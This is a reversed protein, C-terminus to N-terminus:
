EALAQLNARVGEVVSVPLAYGAHRMDSLSQEFAQAPTRPPKVARCAQTWEAIRQEIENM